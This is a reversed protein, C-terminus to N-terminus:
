HQAIHYGDGLKWQRKTQPLFFLCLSASTPVRATNFVSDSTTPHSNYVCKAKCTKARGGCFSDLASFFGALSFNIHTPTAASFLRLLEFHFFSFSNSVIKNVNRHTKSEKETFPFGRHYAFPQIIAASAALRNRFRFTFQFFQSYFM